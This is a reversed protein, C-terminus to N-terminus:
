PTKALNNQRPKKFNDTFRPPESKEHEIANKHDVKKLRIVGGGRGGGEGEQICKCTHEINM